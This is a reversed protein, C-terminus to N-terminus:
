PSAPYCIDVCWSSGTAEALRRGAIGAFVQEPVLCGACASATARVELRVATPGLVVVDLDYGDAALADALPRLADAVAV